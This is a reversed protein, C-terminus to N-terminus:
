HCEVRLAQARQRTAIEATTLGRGEVRGTASRYRIEYRRLFETAVDGRIVWAMNEVGVLTRLGAGAKSVVVAIQRGRGDLVPGGSNGPQVPASIQLGLRSGEFGVTSSALGETVNLSQTVSFVPYGLVIVREGLVVADERFAIPERGTFRPVQVLALDLRVDAGVLSAPQGQVTIRDCGAVVHHNTLVHGETSVLSGSGSATMSRFWDPRGEMGPYDGSMVRWQVDGFPVGARAFLETRELVEAIVPMMPGSQSASASIIISRTEGQRTEIIAFLKLDDVRTLFYGVGQAEGASLVESDEEGKIVSRALDRARITGASNEMRMQRIGFPVAATGAFDIDLLDNGDVKGPGVYGRPVPMRIGTWDSEEIQLDIGERTARARETLIAREESDLSGTEPHGISTQFARVGTTTEPGSLGDVQGQYHGIWLLDRQVDAIDRGSTVPPSLGFARIIEIPLDARAPLAAILVCLAALAPGFGRVAARRFGRAGRTM